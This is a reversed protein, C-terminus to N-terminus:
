GTDFLPAPESDDGRPDASSNSPHDPHDPPLLRRTGTGRELAWGYRTKLDHDHHCLPDLDHLETTYTVTWGTNHDIELGLNRGCGARTCTPALWQLATRQLTTPRRGLHVVSRIDIGDTVIAALFADNMWERVLSVPM